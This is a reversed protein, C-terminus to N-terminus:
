RAGGTLFANMLGSIDSRVSEVKEPPCKWPLSLLEDGRLGRHYRNQLTTYAVGTLRSLERLTVREGNHEVAISTSRLILKKCHPCRSM